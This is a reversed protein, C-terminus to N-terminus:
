FKFSLNSCRTDAQELVQIKAARMKLLRKSEALPISENMRGNALLLFTSVTQVSRSPVKILLLLGTGFRASCDECTRPKAAGARLM